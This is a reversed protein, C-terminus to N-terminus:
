KLPDFDSLDAATAFNTPSKTAQKTTPILASMLSISSATGYQTSGHLPPIPATNHIPHLGTNASSTPSIPSYLSQSPIAASQNSVSTKRLTGSGNSNGSFPVGGPVSGPQKASSIQNRNIQSIGHIKNTALNSASSTQSQTNGSISGWLYDDNWSPGMVDGSDKGEARKVLQEFSVSTAFDPTMSPGPALSTRDDIRQHDRLFQKHEKEVRQGLKQIASMFRSYQGLSLMPGMSLTWLQPLILTAVAERDVKM